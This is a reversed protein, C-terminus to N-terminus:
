LLSDKIVLVAERKVLVMDLRSTLVLAGQGDMYGWLRGFLCPISNLYHECIM